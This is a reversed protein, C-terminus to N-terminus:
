LLIMLYMGLTIFRFFFLLILVVAIIGLVYQWPALLAVAAIGIILVPTWILFRKQEEASHGPFLTQGLHFM